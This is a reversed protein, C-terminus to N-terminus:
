KAAAPLFGGTRRSELLHRLAAAAHLMGEPQCGGLGILRIDPVGACRRLAQEAALIAPDGPALKGADIVIRLIAGPHSALLVARRVAGLHMGDNYVGAVRLM